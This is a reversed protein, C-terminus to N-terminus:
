KLHAVGAILLGETMLERKATVCCDAGDRFFGAAVETAPTRAVIRTSAAALSSVGVAANETKASGSNPIAIADPISKAVNAAKIAKPQSGSV